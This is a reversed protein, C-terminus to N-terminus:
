LRAMREAGVSSVKGTEKRGIRGLESSQGEGCHERHKEGRERECLWTVATQKKRFAPKESMGPAWIDEGAGMAACKRSIPLLRRKAEGKGLGNPSRIM